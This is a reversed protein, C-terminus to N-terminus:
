PPECHTSDVPPPVIYVSTLPIFDIQKSGDTQEAGGPGVNSADHESDFTVEKVTFAEAPVPPAIVATAEAGTAGLEEAEV